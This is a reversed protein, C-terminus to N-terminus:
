IAHHEILSRACDLVTQRAPRPEWGLVRRAKETSHLPRRGLMPTIERLSPDQFWASLRVMIDPIQRTPVRHGHVGLGERLTLAMERMWLFEGTALFRQGAADPSAMARIYLDALDRVDVIELGVRPVGRVKGSLMGAVIGVSGITTTTLVPGFVFGPLVTTLEAGGEHSGTFDWAAREAILKARRHPLLSRDGPDTWVAEDTEGKRAAAHTGAANATSTLVVRGVGSASAARLVRLTGDRALRIMSEPDTMGAHGFPAAVHLVSDVDKVAADWGDDAALDAVAFGLRGSPNVETSVAKAVAKKKRESRVTTRVGYGRRLLETICWGAIFGSGGTVLVLEAM